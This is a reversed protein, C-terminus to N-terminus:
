NMGGASDPTEDSGDTTPVRCIPRGCGRHTGPTSLLSGTAWRDDEDADDRGTDDVDLSSAAGDACCGYWPDSSPAAEGGGDDDLAPDGADSVNGDSM